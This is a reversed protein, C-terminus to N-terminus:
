RWGFILVECEFGGWREELNQDNPWDLFSVWWFNGVILILLEEVKSKWFILVGVGNFLWVGFILGVWHFQFGFWCDKSGCYSFIGNESLNSVLGL